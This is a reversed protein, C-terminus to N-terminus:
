GNIGLTEDQAIRLRFRSPVQTPPSFVIAVKDLEL